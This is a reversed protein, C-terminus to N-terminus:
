PAHKELFCSNLSRLIVKFKPLIKVKSNFHSHSRVSNPCIYVTIRYFIDTLILLQM